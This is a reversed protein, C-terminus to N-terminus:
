TMCNLWILTNNEISENLIQTISLEYVEHFNIYLENLIESRFKTYKNSISKKIFDRKIILYGDFHFFEINKCLVFVKDKSLIHVYFQEDNKLTIHKEKIM